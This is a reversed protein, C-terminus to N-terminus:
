ADRQDRELGVNDAVHASNQEHEKACDTKHEEDGAGIDGIQKKGTRRAASTFEGDPARQPGAGGPHDALQKGFADHEADSAAGDAEDEGFQTRAGDERSQGIPQRACVFNAEVVM